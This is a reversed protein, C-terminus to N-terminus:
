GQDFVMWVLGQNPPVTFNVDRSDRNGNGDLVHITYNGAVNNGPLEALSLM